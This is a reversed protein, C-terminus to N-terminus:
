FCFIAAIALDQYYAFLALIIVISGYTANKLMLLCGFCAIFFLNYFM